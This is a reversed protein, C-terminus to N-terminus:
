GILIPYLEKMGFQEIQEEVWMIKELYMGIHKFTANEDKPHFCHEDDYFGLEESHLEAFFNEEDYIIPDLFQDACAEIKEFIENPICVKYKRMEARMSCYVNEDEVGEAHLYDIMLLYCEKINQKIFDSYTNEQMENEEMMKEEQVEGQKTLKVGLLEELKRLTLEDGPGNSNPRTWSKVADVSLHVEQSLLKYVDEKSKIEHGNWHKTEKIKKIITNYKNRDWM